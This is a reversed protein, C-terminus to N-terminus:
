GAHTEQALGQGVQLQQLGQYSPGPSHGWPLLCCGRAASVGRRRCGWRGVGQGWTVRSPATTVTRRNQLPEATGAEPESTPLRRQAM